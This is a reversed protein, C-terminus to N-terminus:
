GGNRLRILDDATHGSGARTAFSASVGHDHLRVLDAPGFETYGATRLDAVYSASVGHDRLAVLQDLPLGKLGNQSLAEVYDASIGHDRLEILKEVGVHAYGVQRLQGIYAASVGHDRMAVLTAPSLDTLGADVVSKIYDPGVGHDRMTVLAPLTGVHYGLAGMQTLWALHVGHDGADILQAIEPRAYGQRAVEAVYARGIDAMALHFLQVDSPIGYGTKGLDAAFARGPAFSCEGNGAGHWVTGECEFNGADRVIRFRVVTSGTKLLAPDLGQLDAVDITRGWSSSRTATRYSLEFQVKADASDRATIKWQLRAPIESSQGPAACASTAPLLTLAALAAFLRRHMMKEGSLPRHGGRLAHAM